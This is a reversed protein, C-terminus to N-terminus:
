SQPRPRSRQKEGPERALGPKQRQRDLGGLLLAPLLLLAAEKVPANSTPQADPSREPAGEDQTVPGVLSIERLPQVPDTRPAVETREASIRVFLAPEDTPAKDATLQRLADPWFLGAAEDGLTEWVAAPEVAQAPAAHLVLEPDIMEDEDNKPPKKAGDKNGKDNKKEGGKDDGDLKKGPARLGV